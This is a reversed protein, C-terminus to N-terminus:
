RRELRSLRRDIDRVVKAFDTRPYGLTMSVEETDEENIDVTIELVRAQTSVDLRGSQIILDVTDGLWIHGRGRWFGPKLKVTYSPRILSSDALRWDAREELAKTTTIDEQFMKDWRGEPPVPNFGAGTGPREQIAPEAGGGEPQKGSLRVSNAFNTSDVNRSVSALNGGHNMYMLVEGRYSGRQPYWRDLQLGQVGYVDTATVDWEFGNIVESVEQIKEGIPDGLNFSRDRLVGSTQGVGNTIGYNGGVKNQAQQLLEWAIVMQDVQTWVQKSTSLLLRRKLVGRYDMSPVSVTHGNEDLTDSSKGIRGRYLLEKPGGRFAARYVYMDTALEVIRSAAPYTGDLTVSAESADNLNFTVKRSYAGRLEHEIAGPPGIAFSWYPPKMTAPRSVQVQTPPAVEGPGDPPQTVGDEVAQSIAILRGAWGYTPAPTATASRSGTAGAGITETALMMASADNVSVEEQEIMTSTSLSLDGTFQVGGWVGLLLSGEALASLGPVTLTGGQSPSQEGTESSVADVSGAGRLHAVILHTEDRMSETTVTFDGATDADQRWSRLRFNEFRPADPSGLLTGFESWTGSGGSVTLDGSNGYTVGVFALLTDRAQVNPVVVSAVDINSDGYTEVINLM